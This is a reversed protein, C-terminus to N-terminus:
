TEVYTSKTRYNETLMTQLADLQKNRFRNKKDITLGEFYDMINNM